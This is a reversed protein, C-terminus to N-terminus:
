AVAAPPSHTVDQEPDKPFLEDLARQRHHFIKVVDRRVALANVLPALPGGPPRYHVTDTCRTRHDDLPEFTHTHRWLEYPGKLQLDVFHHPPNWELIQTRWRLPVGRVRLRYDILAGANMDIPAPTLVHFQLFPPTIRELNRADAFFPFVRDIPAHLIQSADLRWDRGDRQISVSM